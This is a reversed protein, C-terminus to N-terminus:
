ALHTAPPRRSITKRVDHMTPLGYQEDNYVSKNFINFLDHSYRDLELFDYIDSLVINTNNILDDYDVFFFMSDDNYRIANNVGDISLLLGQAYDSEEFDYRNNREFLMQFSKIVDKIDRICVIVKPKIFYEKLLYVMPETTWARSKDIVVQRTVNQYYANPLESVIKMAVDVRGSSLTIDNCLSQHAGWMLGALNSDGETHILPNQYLISTLLTSGSRPLGSIFHLKKDPTIEMHQILREM